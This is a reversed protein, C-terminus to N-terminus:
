EEGEEEFDDNQMKNMKRRNADSQNFRYSFNLNVTTTGWSSDSHRWFTADWGDWGHKRSGFVDRVNLTITANDGLVDRSLAADLSYNGNHKALPEDHPSHYHGTLQINIIKKFDFKM